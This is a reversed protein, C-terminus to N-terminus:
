PSALNPNKRSPHTSAFGNEISDMIQWFGLVASKRIETRLRLAEPLRVLAAGLGQFYVLDFRLLRRLSQRLYGPLLRLLLDRAPVHMWELLFRNRVRIKRVRDSPVNEKISGVRRHVVRSSPEFVTRWGRRWARLGLDFDESYFPKFISLFGGLAEFMSKRLAMSGGSVFLSERPTRDHAADYRWRLGRLRGREIQFCRWSIPSVRGEDDFTLPGVSFVDATELHRVLPAIFDAEPRVDSNLLILLETSAVAVGTHVAEAFGRNLEHAVVRVAPFESRLIEVSNDMSGDDVVIVSCEGPYNQSAALVAPLNACLLHAGNFNPIIITVPPRPLENM